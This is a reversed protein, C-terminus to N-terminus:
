GGENSANITHDGLVQITQSSIPIHMGRDHFWAVGDQVMSIAIRYIGPVPPPYLRYEIPRSAGPPIDFGVPQRSNWDLARRLDAATSQSDIVRTSLRIPMGTTSYAPLTMPSNNTIQASVLIQDGHVTLRKIQLAVQGMVEAPLPGRFMTFQPPQLLLEPECHPYGVMIVQRILAGYDQKSNRGLFPSASAISFAADQCAGTLEPRPPENGSYGNLTRWGRDQAFLMADLERAWPAPDGPRPALLLIPAQPIERPLEAAVADLRRQWDQKSSIDHTVYAAEFITLAVIFSLTGSRAWLPLRAVAIADLSSAFLVGCPFLLVVSIRTVGRIANVGPLWAILRYVSQGHLWLTLLVLFLIACGATVFLGDLAVRNRLGIAIAIALLPAAGIFMAHENKFPLGDFLPGDSPWLRSVNTLLYSAPRPLMGSTESWQRRFGYLHSVEIYPALLLLMLATLVLFTFLFGLRAGATSRVWLRVPMLLLSKAALISGRRDCAIHGCVWACLLLILFYGIYISCYFQWTIWFAALPLQHWQKFSRFRELSLVALPIGFRYYLQPHTEQSMLPLGFTFLFAGLAAALPSYELKVLAYNCAAFNVVFGTVYWWRLSDERAFGVSRFASYVFTNGLLNDGFAITLPFPYFYDASWFRADQGTTWRFFHELIYSNLRADGIDGPIRGDIVSPGVVFVLGAIGVLIAIASAGALNLTSTRRIAFDGHKL